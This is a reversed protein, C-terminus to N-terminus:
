VTAEQGIGLRPEDKRAMWVLRGESGEPGRVISIRLGSTDIKSSLDPGYDWFALIGGAHLPDSHYEPAAVHVIKGDRLFARRITTARPPVTFIHAGGPRLVRASEKFAAAADPVHELVDSSVILDLSDDPFTLKTIDQCVAGDERITGPAIHERFFSRTYSRAGCLLLRLPSGPDLELVDMVSIQPNAERLYSGLLEYRLNARCRICLQFEGDPGLAVIVSLRNCAQCRRVASKNLYKINPVLRTRVRRWASRSSLSSLIWHM